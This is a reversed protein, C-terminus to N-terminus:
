VELQQVTALKEIVHLLGLKRYVWAVLPAFAFILYRFLLSGLQLVFFFSLALIPPFLKQYPDVYRTVNRNLIKEVVAGMTDSGLADIKFSTLFERRAEELLARQAASLQALAQEQLISRQKEINEDLQQTVNDTVGQNDFVPNVKKLQETIEKYAAQKQTDNDLSQTIQPIVFEGLKDTAVLGLFQDLTMTSRFGPIQKQLYFTIGDRSTALLSTRLAEATKASTGLTAYYCLSVGILILLLGTGFGAHISLQPQFRIRGQVDGGVRWAWVCLGVCVCVSAGFTALRLPFFPLVSLSSAAATLVTVWYRQRKAAMAVVGFLALMACFFVLAILLQAGHEWAPLGVVSHQLPM